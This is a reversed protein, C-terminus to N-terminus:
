PCLEVCLSLSFCVDIWLISVRTLENECYSILTNVDTQKHMQKNREKKKKEEKQQETAYIFKEARSRERRRRTPRYRWDAHPQESTHEYTCIDTRRDATGGRSRRQDSTAAPAEYIGRDRDRADEIEWGISSILMGLNTYRDTLLNM